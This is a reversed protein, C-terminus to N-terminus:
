YGLEEGVIVVKIRDKFRQMGSVLFNCCIRDPSGCGAGMPEGNRCVCHGTKACFTERKLRMCNKPAAVARVREVAEELTGVIKNVGAVVIVSKPGYAIAAIRNSNGDVNYLAGDMTIANASALFVDASFTRAYIEQVDAPTLGPASRDLYEVRSGNGERLIDIIGCEKISESGGHTVSAGEPILSMVQKAAEEKNNVYFATMNNKRLAAMLKEIKEDM